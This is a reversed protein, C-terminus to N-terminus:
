LALTIGLDFAIVNSIQYQRIERAVYSNAGFPLNGWDLTYRFGYNIMLTKSIPTRMKLGYMLQIMKMSEDLKYDKFLDEQDQPDGNPGGTTTGSNSYEVLYNKKAISNITVGVGIQHILGNPLLGNPGSIEIRPLILISNVRFSEHNTVYSNSNYQGNLVNEALTFQDYGIELAIGVNTKVAHGISVRAGINFWNNAQLLSNGSPAVEQKRGLHTLAYIMPVYSSSSIDVFTKKGYYGYNDQAMLSSSTILALFLGLLKIMM